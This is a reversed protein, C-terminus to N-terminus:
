TKHINPFSQLKLMGKSLIEVYSPQVRQWAGDNMIEIRQKNINGYAIGNHHSHGYILHNIKSLDYDKDELFIKIEDFYYDPKSAYHWRKLVRMNAKILNFELNSLELFQNDVFELSQNKLMALEFKMMEYTIPKVKRGKKIIYNWFYDYTEKVEFSNNSILSKWIQGIFFRYVDSDFQYGHTMLCEYDNDLDLGQIKVQNIPNAEIQNREDYLLLRDENKWKKLIIYQCCFEKDFLEKFNSMDFRKLFREKRRKFKEDYDGTVPIEHNGLVLILNVEKKIEMLTTLIKKVVDRELLTKTTDTCLDIFDGLIILAQIRNGHEGNVISNLFQLFLERKCDLSGLHIDSVILLKSEFEM